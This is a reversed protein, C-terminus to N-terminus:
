IASTQSANKNRTSTTVMQFIPVVWRVFLYFTICVCLFVVCTNNNRPFWLSFYLFSLHLKKGKWLLWLCTFISRTCLVCTKKRKLNDSDHLFVIKYCRIKVLYASMHNWKNKIKKREKKTKNKKARWGLRLISAHSCHQRNFFLLRFISVTWRSKENVCM